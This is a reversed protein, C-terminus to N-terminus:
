KAPESPCGQLPLTKVTHTRGNFAAWMLPTMGLQQDQISIEAGAEILATVIRNHGLMAAQTLATSGERDKAELDAGRDLLLEVTRVHGQASAAILATVGEQSKQNIRAGEELLTRVKEVQGRSAAEVLRSGTHQGGVPIPILVASAILVIVRRLM